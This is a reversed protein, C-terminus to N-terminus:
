DQFIEAVPLSFGPLIEEETLVDWEEFREVEMRSRYALVYRHKPDVIWVVDVGMALYEELKEMVEGRRDDPSLVEIVLEPAIDLFGGLDRRAYRDHSIFVLDAGRVTDPSRRTWIGVEGFLVRGQGSERAYNGLPIGIAGEYYGHLPKAPSLPVIRGNVLECPGMDPLRALEEATILREHKPLLVM